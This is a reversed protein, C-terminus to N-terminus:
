ATADPRAALTRIPRECSATGADVHERSLEGPRAAQGRRARMERTRPDITGARRLVRLHDNTTLAHPLALLVDGILDAIEGPRDIERDM